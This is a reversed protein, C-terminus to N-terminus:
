LDIKMFTIQKQEPSAFSSTIHSFHGNRYNTMLHMISFENILVRYYYLRQNSFLAGPFSFVDTLPHGITNAFETRVLMGIHM